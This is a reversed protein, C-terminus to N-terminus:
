CSKGRLDEGRDLGGQRLLLGGGMLGGGRAHPGYTQAAAAMPSAPFHARGLWSCHAATSARELAVAQLTGGSGPLLAGQTYMYALLCGRRRRRSGQRGAQRHLLRQGGGVLIALLNLVAQVVACTAGQVSAAHMEGAVLNSVGLLGM